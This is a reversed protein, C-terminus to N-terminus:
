SPLSDPYMCLQGHTNIFLWTTSFTTGQLRKLILQDRLWPYHLAGAKYGSSLDYDKPYHQLAFQELV